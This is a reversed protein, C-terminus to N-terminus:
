KWEVNTLTAIWTATAEASQPLALTWVLLKNTTQALLRQGDPSIVVGSVFPHRAVMTPSQDPDRPQALLWREGTAPDFVEVAGNAALSGVLSGDATVSPNTIPLAVPQAAEAHALDVILAGGDNGIALVRGEGVSIVNTITRGLKGLTQQKGDTRWIRLENGAGYIVDGGVLAIAKKLPTLEVDLKTETHTALQIRWLKKDDLAAAITGGDAPSVAMAQVPRQAKVLTQGALTIMGNAHAIVLRQDDLFAVQELEDGLDVPEGTAAVIRGHHYADILAARHGDPAPALQAIGTIDGIPSSKGTHLDIWQAPADLNTMVIQDGTVFAAGSIADQGLEKPVIADLDWVLVRNDAAAVVFSGRQSATIRAIRVPSAISRDGHDTLVTFGMPRGAVLMDGHAPELGLTFDVGAVRAAPNDRALMVVGTPGTVFLKDGVLAIHFHTGATMRHTTQPAPDLSFAHVEDDTLAVLGKNDAQYAIDRVMGDGISEPPLGSTRDIMWLHQAGALAVWRGDPSPYIADIPEDLPIKIPAGGALDLKWLAKQDDLYYAIPGAVELKAINTPTELDRHNGSQVDVLTVHTEHFLVVTHEADGFRAPTMAHSAFLERTKQHALDYIRIVGDDGASLARQGDKSLELSISHASGPLAFAVGNARAAAAVDRVERWRASGALPKVLAVARSPEIVAKTRADAITLSDAREIALKENAEAREKQAIAETRERNARDKAAIIRSISFTAILILIAVASAGMGVLARNKAVWKQLKERPSYHHSAVLQGTLFRHLDDALARADHYRDKRDFALAKDVITALEPAVGPVLERLPQPPGAMAQKMIEQGGAKSYHPPKRALLHYLTAGLAYVDCREDPHAGRLQEPAMFGPTGFVIGARTKIADPDEDAVVSVARREDEVDRDDIAKALGWDIVMTEGLEGALINSPKIDRHVVGREHAHAIANASAVIHPLLALRDSLETARGVLEELPRGGIKRMVYFPSGNEATGADHVPVISPHELRATIRTEREFRRVADPDLSLAEKVAVTRGLVTDTAEVVRGMGGRAIEHGYEYRHPPMEPPPGLDPQPGSPPAITAEIAESSAVQITGGTPGISPVPKRDDGM